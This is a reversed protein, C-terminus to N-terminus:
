ELFPPLTALSWSNFTDMWGQPAVELFSRRFTSYFPMAQGPPLGLLSRLSSEHQRCFDALPRYGSYGCLFGLLSFFLIM